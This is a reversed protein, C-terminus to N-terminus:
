VLALPGGRMVLTSTMRPQNPGRPARRSATVAHGPPGLSPRRPRPRRTRRSLAARSQRAAGALRGLRMLRSFFEGLVPPPVLAVHWGQWSSVDDRPQGVIDLAVQLTLVVDPCFWASEVVRLNSDDAVLETPEPRLQPADKVRWDAPSVPWASPLGAGAVPPLQESWNEQVLRVVEVRTLGSEATVEDLLRRVGGTPSDLDYHVWVADPARPDM